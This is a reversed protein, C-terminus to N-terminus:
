YIYGDGPYGILNIGVATGDAPSLKVVYSRSQHSKWSVLVATLFMASLFM